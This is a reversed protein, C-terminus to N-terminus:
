CRYHLASEPLWRVRLKQTISSDDEFKKEVASTVLYCLYGSEDSNFSTKSDSSAVLRWCKYDYSQLDNNWRKKFCQNMSKLNASSNERIFGFVPSKPSVFPITMGKFAKGNLVLRRLIASVNKYGKKFFEAEYRIATPIDQMRPPNNLVSKFRIPTVDHGNYAHMGCSERFLSQTFSKSINLKCGFQPLWDYVAQTCEIPVIIDDGYIYVERAKDLPVNSSELIARILAFHFLSMVPFCVASGMPAFKNADLIDPTFCGSVEPLQIQETSVALLANLMPKNGSHLYAVVHRAVRDSAESMDITSHTKWRSAHLALKRNVLQTSFNVKGRTISSKEIRATMARRLAQQLWQIENEEICIGRKKLYTKPVFKFRSTAYAVAPECVRLFDEVPVAEHFNTKLFYEWPNETNRSHHYPLNYWEDYNFVEDTKLYAKHPQFRMPKSVPTNTAGPGPRPLFEKIQDPDNPDLGKLVATHINKATRAIDRVCERSLDIYKLEDDVFVFDALQKRIAEKQRVSETRLQVKKFAVCFQYLHEISKTAIADNPNKYIPEFLGSLFVPHGLGKTKFSPYVSVGTELYNLLSDFLSPLTACAFHLGECLFRQSLTNIDRRFGVLGYSPLHDHIDTLMACLLELITISSQRACETKSLRRESDIAFRVSKASTATKPKEPHTAYLKEM